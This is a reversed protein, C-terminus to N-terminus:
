CVHWMDGEKLSSMGLLRCAYWRKKNESLVHRVNTNARTSPMDAVQQNRCKKRNQCREAKRRRQNIKVNGGELRELRERKLAARRSRWSGKASADGEANKRSRRDRRKSELKKTPPQVPTRAEGQHVARSGTGTFSGAVELPEKLRVAAVTGCRAAPVDSNGKTCPASRPRVGPEAVEKGLRLVLCKLDKAADRARLVDLGLTFEDTIIAVFM